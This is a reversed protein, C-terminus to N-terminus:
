RYFEGAAQDDLPKHFDEAIKILGKATGPVRGQLPAPTGGPQEGDQEVLIIVEVDKNVLCTLGTIHLTDSDLHKRIKLAQM